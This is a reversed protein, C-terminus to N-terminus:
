EGIWVRTRIVSQFFLYLWVWGCEGGSWGVGWRAREAIRGDFLFWRSVCGGSRVVPASTRNRLCRAVGRM